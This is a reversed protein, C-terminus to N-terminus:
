FESEILSGVEFHSREM